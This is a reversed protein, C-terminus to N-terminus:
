IARFPKLGSLGHQIAVAVFATETSAGIIQLRMMDSVLVVASLGIIEILFINNGEAPLAM